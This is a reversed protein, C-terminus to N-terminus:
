EETLKETFSNMMLTRIEGWKQLDEQCLTVTVSYGMSRKPFFRSRLLHTVADEMCSEPTKRRDFTAIVANGAPIFGGRASKETFHDWGPVQKFFEQRYEDAFGGLSADHQVPHRGIEMAQRGNPSTFTTLDLSPKVTWGTPFLVTYEKWASNDFLELVPAPIPTPTPIATPAPTSTPAPTPTPISPKIVLVPTPTHVPTAPREPTETSTSTTPTKTGTNERRRLEIPTLSNLVQRGKEEFDIDECFGATALYTRRNSDDTGGNRRHTIRVEPCANKSRTGFAFDERIAEGTPLTTDTSHYMNVNWKRREEPLLDKEYIQWYEDFTFGPSLFTTSIEIYSTVGGATLTVWQEGININWAKPYTIRFGQHWINATETEESSEAPADEGKTETELGTNTAEPRNVEESSAMHGATPLPQRGTWHKAIVPSEEGFAKRVEEIGATEDDEAFALAMKYLKQSGEQFKQKGKSQQLEFFLKEGLYYNCHFQPSEHGPDLRSLEQLTTVTCTKQKTTILDMPLGQDRGFGYEITNSMGEDIWDESGRWFYHAVEHVMGKRFAARDWDTGDEGKRLYAIAQGYNVGAFDAIVGTDDLLVIVHNTPLALGMAEEVYKVAEEVTKSSDTVRRTGARVISISLNPTRSSATQVTEVTASGPNLVRGLQSNDDIITGAVAFVTENDTIGDAVTPHNMFGSLTGRHWRGHLGDILLADAETVSELFPMEAVKRTAEKDRYSLYMLKQIAKSEPSTIHDETWQLALVRELTEHDNVAMHILNQAAKAEEGTLGDKVWQLNKITKYTGGHRGRLWDANEMKDINTPVMKDINTPVMKPIHTASTSSGKDDPEEGTTTATFRETWAPGEERLEAIFEPGHNVGWYIAWWGGVLIAIGFILKILIILCGEDDQTDQGTQPM